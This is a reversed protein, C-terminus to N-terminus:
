LKVQTESIFEFLAEKERKSIVNDYTPASLLCAYGTKKRVSLDSIEKITKSGIGLKKIDTVVCYFTHRLNEKRVVKVCTYGKGYSKSQRPTDHKLAKIANLPSFLVTQLFVQMPQM